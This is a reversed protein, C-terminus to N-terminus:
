FLCAYPANVHGCGCGRRDDQENVHRGANKAEALHAKTMAHQADTTTDTWLKCFDNNRRSNQTPRSKICVQVCYEGPLSTTPHPGPPVVQRIESKM